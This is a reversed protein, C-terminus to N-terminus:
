GIKVALFMFSRHRPKNNYLKDGLKKILLTEFGM